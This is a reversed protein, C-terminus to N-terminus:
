TPNWYSLMYGEDSDYRIGYFILDETTFWKCLMKILGDDGGSTEVQICYELALDHCRDCIGMRVNLLDHLSTATEEADESAYGLLHWHPTYPPGLYAGLYGEILMDQTEDWLSM